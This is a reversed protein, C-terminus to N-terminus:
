KKASTPPPGEDGLNGDISNDGYSLLVGGVTALWGFENGTVTSQALRITANAGQAHIGALNNSAVSGVVLMNIVAHGVGSFANIGQQLNAAAVSDTVTANIAGTSSFGSVLLGPEANGYLGIRDFLASITSSGSPRLWIGTGGNNSDLTKSISFTSTAVPFLLIGDGALNRILCSEITLSKGKIFSIGVQGLGAGEIILGRLNIADGAGANIVIGVGGSPATIGSF